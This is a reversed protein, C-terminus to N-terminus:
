PYINSKGNIPLTNRNNVTIYVFM